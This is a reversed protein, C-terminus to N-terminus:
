DFNSVENQHAIGAGPGTDDKTTLSRLEVAMITVKEGGDEGFPMMM